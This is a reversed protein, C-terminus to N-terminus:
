GDCISIQVYDFRNSSSDNPEFASSGEKKRAALLETTCVRVGWGVKEINFVQYWYNAKRLGTKEKKDRM